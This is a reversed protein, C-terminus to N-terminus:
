SQVLYKNHAWPVPQVMRMTGSRGIDEFVQQHHYSSGSSSLSPDRYDPPFEHGDPPLRSFTPPAVMSDSSDGRVHHHSLLLPGEMINPPSAHRAESSSSSSRLSCGSSRRSSVDSFYILRTLFSGPNLGVIESNNTRWAM